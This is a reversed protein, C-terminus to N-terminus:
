SACRTSRATPEALLPRAGRSFSRDESIPGRPLPPAEDRCDVSVIIAGPASWVATVERKTPIVVDRSMSHRRRDPARRVCDKRSPQFFHEM